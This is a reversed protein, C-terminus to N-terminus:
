SCSGCRLGIGFVLSSCKLSRRIRLETVINGGGLKLGIYRLKTVIQLCMLFTVFEFVRLFM